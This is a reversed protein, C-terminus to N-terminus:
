LKKEQPPDTGHLIIIPELTHCLWDNNVQVLHGVDNLFNPCLFLGKRSKENKSKMSYYSNMTKM